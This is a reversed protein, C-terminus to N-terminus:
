ALNTLKEDLSLLPLNESKALYLYSADYPTIQTELSLILVKKLDIELNGIQFGLFDTLLNLAQRKSLRKPFVYKLGSIIELPLIPSSLFTIEGRAYKEFVADVLNSSEDPLLRALVFSADIIYTKTNGAPM